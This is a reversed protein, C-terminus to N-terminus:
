GKFLKDISGVISDLPVMKPKIKTGQRVQNLGKGLISDGKKLGKEILVYNDIRTEIEIQIKRLTDGKTLQFAYVLTQDEFTSQEPVVLANQYKKPIMITGSNGNALLSKPNPFLARFQVSGTNPDIQDITTEITGRHEYNAGGPLKLIVKPFNGLKEKLTEGKTNKLFSVYDKENLSFYAYINKTNSITTLPMIDTASVLAGQKNPISAVRGSIPSIVSSYDTNRKVSRYSNRAQQLQAQAAQLNTQATKLEVKGVIGKTVLPRLKDVELRAAAAMAQASRIANSAARAEADLSEVELRFLIQGEIVEEGEDVYIEEIFGQIKPRIEINQIGELSAPFSSYGTLNRIEARVVPYTPLRTKKKKNDESCGLFSLLLLLLAFIAYTKKLLM